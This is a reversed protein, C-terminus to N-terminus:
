KIYIYYLSNDDGANVYAWSQKELYGLHHKKIKTKYIDKLENGTLSVLYSFGFIAGSTKVMRPNHRDPNIPDIFEVQKKHIDPIINNDLIYKLIQNFSDTKNNHNDCLYLHSFVRTDNNPLLSLHLIKNYLNNDKDTNATLIKNIWFRFHQHKEHNLSKRWNSIGNKELWNRKEKIIPILEKYPHEEALTYKYNTYDYYEVRRDFLWTFSLISEYDGCENIATTLVEIINVSEDIIYNDLLGHENFNFEKFMDLLNMFLRKDYKLAWRFAIALNVKFLNKNEM